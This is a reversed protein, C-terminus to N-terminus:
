REWHFPPAPQQRLQISRLLSYPVTWYSPRWLWRWRKSPRVGLYIRLNHTWHFWTLSVGYFPFRREWEFISGHRWRLRM